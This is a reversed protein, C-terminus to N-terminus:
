TIPAFLTIRYSSSENLLVEVLDYFSRCKKRHLFQFSPDFWWVSRAEDCLWLCHLITKPHDVCRDCTINVPVHQANLNQKTPFLDKVAQWLFHRIRNPARIKWFEKSDGSSSSNPMGQGEEVVLIHYASRVSYEGDLTHTWILIDESWTELVQIRRVM